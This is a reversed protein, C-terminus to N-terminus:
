DDGDGSSDDYQHRRRESEPEDANDGWSPRDGGSWLLLVVLGVLAVVGLWIVTESM